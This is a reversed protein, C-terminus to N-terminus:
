SAQREKLRRETRDRESIVAQIASAFTSDVSTAWPFTPVDHARESALSRVVDKSVRDRENLQQWRAHHVRIEDILGVMLDRVVIGEAQARRRITLHLKVLAAAEQSEADKFWKAVLPREATLDNKKSEIKRRKARLPERRKDERIARELAGDVDAIQRELAAIENGMTSLRAGVEKRRETAKEGAKEAQECEKALENM